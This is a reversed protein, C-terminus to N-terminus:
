TFPSPSTSECSLSVALRVPYALLPQVDDDVLRGLISVQVVTLAIGLTVVLHTGIYVTADQTVPPSKERKKCYSFRPFTLPLGFVENLKPVPDLTKRFTLIRIM